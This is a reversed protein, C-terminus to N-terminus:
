RKRSGIIQQAWKQVRGIADEIVFDQGLSISKLLTNGNELERFRERNAHRSIHVRRDSFFGPLEWISTNYGM